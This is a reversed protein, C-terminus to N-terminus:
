FQAGILQALLFLPANVIKLQMKELGITRDFRM